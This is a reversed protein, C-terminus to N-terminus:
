EFILLGFDEPTHFGGPGWVFTWMQRAPATRCLNMGWVDGKKIQNESILRLVEPSLSIRGQAGARRHQPPKAGVDVM